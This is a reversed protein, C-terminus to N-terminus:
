HDNLPAPSTCPTWSNSQRPSSHVHVYISYNNPASTSYNPCPTCALNGSKLPVGIKPEQADFGIEEGFRTCGVITRPLVITSLRSQGSCRRADEHRLGHSTILHSRLPVQASRSGSAGDLSSLSAGSWMRSSNASLNVDEMLSSRPFDLLNTCHTRAVRAGPTRDIRHTRTM